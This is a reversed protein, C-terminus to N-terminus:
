KAYGFKDKAFQLLATTDESVSCKIKWRKLSFIIKEWAYMIYYELVEYWDKIQENQKAGEANKTIELVGTVFNNKLWVDLINFGEKKMLRKIFRVDDYSLAHECEINFKARYRIKQGGTQEIAKANCPRLLKDWKEKHKDWEGYKGNIESYRKLACRCGVELEDVGEQLVVNLGYKCLRCDNKKATGWINFRGGRFNVYLPCKCEDNEDFKRIISGDKEFETDLKKVYNEKCSSYIWRTKGIIRDSDFIYQELEKEYGPSNENCEKRIENLKIEITPIGLARIKDKKGDKVNHTIYFEVFCKYEKNNSKYTIVADPVFKVIKGDIEVSQEEELKVDILDVFKGHRLIKQTPIGQNYVVPPLYIRKRKKLLEKAFRHTISEGIFEHDHWHEKKQKSIHAFYKTGNKMPVYKVKQWTNSELLCGICYFNEDENKVDVLRVHVYDGKKTIAWPMYIDKDHEDIIPLNRLAEDRRDIM